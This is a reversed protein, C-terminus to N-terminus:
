KGGTCKNLIELANRIEQLCLSCFYSRECCGFAWRKWKKEYNLYGLTPDKKKHSVFFYFGFKNEHTSMYNFYLYKNDLGEIMEKIQNKEKDKM